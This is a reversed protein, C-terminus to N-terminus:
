SQWTIWERQAKRNMNDRVWKKLSINMNDVWRCRPRGLPRKGEPKGILINHANLKEELYAVNGVLRM